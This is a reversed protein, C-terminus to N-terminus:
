KTVLAGSREFISLIGEGFRFLDTPNAAIRRETDTEMWWDYSLIFVMLYGTVFVPFYNLSLCAKFIELVLSMVRM